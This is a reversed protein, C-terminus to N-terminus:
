FYPLKQSSVKRDAKESCPYNSQDPPLYRLASMKGMVCLIFPVKLLQVKSYHRTGHQVQQYVLTHASPGGARVPCCGLEEARM